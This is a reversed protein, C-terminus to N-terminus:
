FTNSFRVPGTVTQELWDFLRQKLAETTGPRDGIAQCLAEVYDLKRTRGTFFPDLDTAVGPCFLYHADLMFLADPAVRSSSEGRNGLSTVFTRINCRERLVQSPWEPDGSRA